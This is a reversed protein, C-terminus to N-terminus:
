SLGSCPCPKAPTKQSNIPSYYLIKSSHNQTQTNISDVTLIVAFVLFCILLFIVVIAWTKLKVERKDKKLNGYRIYKDSCKCDTFKKNCKKCKLENIM